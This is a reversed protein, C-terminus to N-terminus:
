NGRSNMQYIEIIRRTSQEAEGTGKLSPLKETITTVLRDALEKGAGRPSHGFTIATLLGEANDFQPTATLLSDMEKVAAGVQDATVVAVFADLMQAQIM